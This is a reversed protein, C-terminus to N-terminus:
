SLRCIPKRRQVYTGEENMQKYNSVIATNDRRSIGEMMCGIDGYYLTSNGARRPHKAM